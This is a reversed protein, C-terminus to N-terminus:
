ISAFIPDRFLRGWFTGSLSLFSCVIYDFERDVVGATAINFFDNVNKTCNLNSLKRTLVLCCRSHQNESAQGPCPRLLALTDVPEPVCSATSTTAVQAKEEKNLPGM